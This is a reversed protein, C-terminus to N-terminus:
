TFPFERVITRQRFAPLTYPAGPNEDDDDDDIKEYKPSDVM